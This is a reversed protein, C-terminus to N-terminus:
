IAGMKNFIITSLVSSIIRLNKRGTSNVYIYINISKKTNIYKCILKMALNDRIGIMSLVKYNDILACNRM